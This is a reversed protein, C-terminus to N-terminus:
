VVVVRCCLCGLCWDRVCIFVIMVIMKVSFSIIISSVCLIRVMNNVLGGCCM